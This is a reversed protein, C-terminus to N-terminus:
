RLCGLVRQQEDSAPTVTWLLTANKQASLVDGLHRRLTPKVFRHYAAEINVAERHNQSFTMRVANGPKSALLAGETASNEVPGLEPANTNVAYGVGRLCSATERVSYHKHVPNGCGAAIVAPLLLLARSLSMAAVTAPPSSLM